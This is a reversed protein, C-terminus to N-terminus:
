KGQNKRRASETGASDARKNREKELREHRTQGWHVRSVVNLMEREEPTRSQPSSGCADPPLKCTLCGRGPKCDPSM